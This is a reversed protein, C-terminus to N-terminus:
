QCEALAKRYHEKCYGHSILGEEIECLHLFERCVCCISLGRDAILITRGTMKAARSLHAIQSVPWGTIDQIGTLRNNKLIYATM